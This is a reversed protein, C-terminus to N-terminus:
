VTVVIKGTQENAELFRHAEVISDIGRFVKAIIPKFTGKQLHETIFKVARQTAEEDRPLGLPSSGYFDFVKYTQVSVGRKAFLPFIPFPTPEGSLLGYLILYGYDAVVKALTTIQPGIVPDFIVNAGKGGTIELVRKELDETNTAIVHDAGADLIKQKKSDTRTTAIVNAGLAKAIQIAGLATSSSAATILAYQGKSLKGVDVLAFYATLYATWVSAAEEPTLNSPHKIVYDAPFVAEEAYAPWHVQSPSLVSVHDGVKLHSVGEGVADVIGAAENGLSTPFVPQVLYQGRRYMSEARNLGLAQVRIRVEGKKPVPIPAEEVKLVEPEGATYFRVIKTTASM